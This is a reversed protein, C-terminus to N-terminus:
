GILRGPRFTRGGDETWLIVGDEGVLFGHDPDAFAGAHLERDDIDTELPRWRSGRDDTRLVLGGAGLVFAVGDSGPPVAVFNLDLPTSVGSRRWTRAGDDTLLLTGDPGCLLGHLRDWFACAAVDACLPRGDLTDGVPAFSDGRDETVFHQTRLISFEDTLTQSLVWGVGSDLLFVGFPAMGPAHVRHWTRGGDATRWMAEGAGVALGHYGDAFVVQTLPTERTQRALDEVREWSVGADGTHLLLGHGADDEGCVFGRRADLFWVGYLRVPAAFLRRDLLPHFTRGLDDTRWLVASADGTAETAFASGGQLLQADSFLAENM